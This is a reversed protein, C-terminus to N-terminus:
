LFSSLVCSPVVSRPSWELFQAALCHRRASIVSTGAVSWITSRGACGLGTSQLPGALDRYREPNKSSLEAYSLVMVPPVSLESVCVGETCMRSVWSGQTVRQSPQVRLTPPQCATTPPEWSLLTLNRQLHLDDGEASLLTELSSAM